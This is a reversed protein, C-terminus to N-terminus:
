LSLTWWCFLYLPSMIINFCVPESCTYNERRLLVDQNEFLQCSATINSSPIHRRNLLKKKKELFNEQGKCLKSKIKLKQNWEVRSQMVKVLLKETGNLNLKRWPAKWLNEVFLSFLSAEWSWKDSVPFDIFAANFKRRPSVEQLCFAMSRLFLNFLSKLIQM